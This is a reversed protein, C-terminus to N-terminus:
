ADVDAASECVDEDEGGGAVGEAGFDGGCDWVLADADEVADGFHAVLELVVILVEVAFEMENVVARRGRSIGHELAFACARRQDNCRTMPINERQSARMDGTAQTSPDM